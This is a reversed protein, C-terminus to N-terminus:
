SGSKDSEEAVGAAEVEGTHQFEVLIPLSRVYPCRLLPLDGIGGAASGIEHTHQQRCTGVTGGNVVESSRPFAFSVGM